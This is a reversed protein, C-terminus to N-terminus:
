TRAPLVWGVRGALNEALSRERGERIIAGICFICFEITSSKERKILQTKLLIELIPHIACGFTSIRCLNAKYIGLIWGFTSM